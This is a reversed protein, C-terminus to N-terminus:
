ESDRRKIEPLLITEIDKRALYPIINKNCSGCGGDTIYSLAYTICCTIGEYKTNHIKGRVDEISNISHGLIMEAAVSGFAMIINPKGTLIFNEAYSYCNSYEKLTTAKSRTVCSIVTAYSIVSPDIKLGKIIQHVM